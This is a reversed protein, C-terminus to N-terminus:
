RAAKQKPYYHWLARIKGNGVNRREVRPHDSFAERLRITMWSYDCGPTRDVSFGLQNAIKLPTNCGDQIAALILEDLAANEEATHNMSNPSRRFPAREEPQSPLPRETIAADESARANLDPPLQSPFLARLQSGPGVMLLCGAPLLLEKHIPILLPM